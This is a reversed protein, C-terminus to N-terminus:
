DTYFQIYNQKFTHQIEEGDNSKTKEDFLIHIVNTEEDDKYLIYNSTKFTCIIEDNVIISNKSIALKSKKLDVEIRTSAFEIIVKM